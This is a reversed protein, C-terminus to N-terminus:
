FTILNGLTCYCGIENLMMCFIRLPLPYKFPVYRLVDNPTKLWGSLM